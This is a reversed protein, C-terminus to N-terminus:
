RNEAIYIAPVHETLWVGNESLYFKFGNKYMDEARITLIVPKGYRQGVKLATQKDISLHVHHREGKVLGNEQISDLNKKATGHYLTAPPVQEPLDLDVTVSHGQNARIRSFDNSFAFRKKDNNEVVQKLQGLTLPFKNTNIKELLEHTDTWGNDDLKLGLVEPKHRLLLSLFKSIGKQEKNTLSM